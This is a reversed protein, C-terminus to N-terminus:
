VGLEKDAMAGLDMNDYVYDFDDRVLRDFVKINDITGDKKVGAELMFQADLVPFMKRAFDKRRRDNKGGWSFVDGSMVEEIYKAYDETKKALGTENGELEPFLQKVMGPTFAKIAPGLRKKVDSRSAWAAKEREVSAQKKERQTQREKEQAEREKKVAGLEIKGTIPDFRDDLPNYAGSAVGADWTEQGLQRDTEAKSRAADGALEQQLAASRRAEEERQKLQQERTLQIQNGARDTVPFGSEVLWNVAEDYRNNPAVEDQPTALPQQPRQSEQVQQRALQRRRQEEFLARNLVDQPVDGYTKINFRANLAEQQQREFEERAERREEATSLERRRPLERYAKYEALFQQYDPNDRTIDGSKIREIFRKQQREYLGDEASSRYGEQVGGTVQPYSGPDPPPATTTITGAPNSYDWIGTIPGQVNQSLAASPSGAPGADGRAGIAGANGPIAPVAEGEGFMADFERAGPTREDFISEAGLARNEADFLMADGSRTDGDTRGARVADKVWQPINPNDVIAELDKKSQAEMQQRRREEQAREERVKQIAEPFHSQVFASADAAIIPDYGSMEQVKQALQEETLGPDTNKALEQAYNSKFEQLKSEMYSAAAQGEPGASALAERQARLSHPSQSMKYFSEANMPPRSGGTGINRQVAAAILNSAPDTRNLTPLLARNRSPDLTQKQALNYYRQMRDHAIQPQGAYKKSTPAADPKGQMRALRDEREQVISPIRAM